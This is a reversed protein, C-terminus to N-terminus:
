RTMKDYKVRTLSILSEGSKLRLRVVEQELKEMTRAATHLYDGMAQILEILEQSVAKPEENFSTLTKNLLIDTLFLDKSQM